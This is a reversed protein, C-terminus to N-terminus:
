CVEKLFSSSLLSNKFIINEVKDLDEKKYNIVVSGGGYSLVNINFKVFKFALELCRTMDKNLLFSYNNNENSKSLILEFLLLSSIDNSYSNFSLFRSKILNVLNQYKADILSFGSSLAVRSIDFDAYKSLVTLEDYSMWVKKQNIDDPLLLKGEDRPIVRVESMVYSDDTYSSLKAMVNNDLIYKNKVSAFKWEGQPLEYNFIDLYYPVRPFSVIATETFKRKLSTYKIRESIKNYTNETNEFYKHAGFVSLVNSTSDTLNLNHGLHHLINHLVISMESLMRMRSLSFLGLEYSIQSLKIIFFNSPKINYRLLFPNSNIMSESLDSVFIVDKPLTTITEFSYVKGKIACIGDSFSQSNFQICGVKM